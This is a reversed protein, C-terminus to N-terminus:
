RDLWQAIQGNSREMEMNWDKNLGMALKFDRFKIDNIKREKSEILAVNDMLVSKNLNAIYAAVEIDNPAIGEIDIHTDVLAANSTKKDASAAAAQYQSVPAASATAKVEKEVLKFKLLSVGKPLNNTLCALIISKPVPELLGMTMDATKIMAVAKSRLEELQRLPGQAKEMKANVVALEAEVAKQRVKIISFTIAMVGMLAALLVLYVFNARKSERNEIYDNPVFNINVM